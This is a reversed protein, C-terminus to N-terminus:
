WQESVLTIRDVDTYTLRDISGPNTEVGIADDDLGAVTGTIHTDTDLTREDRYIEIEDGVDVFDRIKQRARELDSNESVTLETM